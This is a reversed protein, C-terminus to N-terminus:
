APAAFGDTDDPDPEAPLRVTFTSGRGPVSAADIDGGLSSAVARAISLGLGSGGRKRDRSTEARVFREFVHPLVEAPVGIGTDEVEVTAGAADLRGRVSVRGGRRNYRVANELLNDFVQRLRDADSRVVAAPLPGIEVRVDAAEAARRVQEVSELVVEDLRVVEDAPPVAHADERALSLLRESLRTLRGVEEVVSTLVAALQEASRRSQLAIEAEARITALPTMLEHSADATFRRMAAFTDDLRALMANLTAALRGLEDDPNAVALREGLNDASIRRAAATMDRVPRLARGALWAGGVAAAVLGGPFIVLLANRLDALEARQDALSTAIQVVFRDEPGGPGPATGTIVRHAGLRGIVADSLAPRADPPPVPGPPLPVGALAPSELRTRGRRDTVRLLYEELFAEPVGGLDPRDGFDALREVTESYEFELMEDTQEVLARAVHGYAAVSAAALIATTVAANWLTLRTRVTLRTM